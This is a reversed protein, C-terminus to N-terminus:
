EVVKAGLANLIAVVDGQMNTVYYYRQGNYELIMPLGSADYIFRLTDAGETMQSLLGGNYVYNYTTINNTRQTRMGDADYTFSWIGNSGAMGALQRGHQWQYTWRGDSLPNGIEDYTIQTGNYVTMLDGWSPATFERYSVSVPTGLDGTTYAYERKYVINGANDYQYTWTRNAAQNNERILQGQSDYVYTTTGIIGM